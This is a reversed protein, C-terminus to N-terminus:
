KGVIENKVEESENQEKKQLEIRQSSFGHLYRGNLPVDNFDNFSIKAEIENILNEYYIKSGQSTRALYPALKQERLLKWTSEPLRSFREMYKKANTERKEGLRNLIKQEIVDAVALLRGFLYDRETNDQKVAVECRGERNLVACTIRLAQEWEWREMKLPNSARQILSKKISLPVKKGEVIFRLLREITEKILKDNQKGYAAIAIHRLLPTGIRTVTKEVKPSWYQIEWICNVYWVELRDLYLKKDLKQYYLASLRGTTAGDLILIKVDDDGSLNNEFGLLAKKVQLAYHENTTPICEDDEAFNFSNIVEPGNDIGWIVFAREDIITGQRNILWKLANHAKQSVEYSVTAVEDSKNFRGRFTFGSKDNSSILKAKDGAHRIKNAHSTAVPLADGTVYCLENGELESQHYSLFATQVERDNWVEEMVEETSRVSFRVFAVSQENTVSTFISPKEGRKPDWKKLLKGYDDVYLIRYKVLDEILNGKSLYNYISQIKPHSYSSETWKKLNKIYHLFPEEGKFTIGYAECDGAVYVLKDHLPYPAIKSGSRSSSAETCPILTVRDDEKQLVRASHFQGDPTVVVEIHATQTTHSVPLLTYTEGKQNQERKGVQVANKEYTHYLDFIWSM